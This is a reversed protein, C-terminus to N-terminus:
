GGVTPVESAGSVRLAIRVVAKVNSCPSPPGADPPILLRVPGGKGPALPEGALTHLLLGERLLALPVPDSAFGDAAVVVAETAGGDGVRDLLAAVRAAEGARGPVRAGVDPVAGPLAALAERDVTVFSGDPRVVQLRRALASLEGATMRAAELWAGARDLAEAGEAAVFVDVRSDRRWASPRDIVDGSAIELRVVGEDTRFLGKMRELPAGAGGSALRALADVLRERCFVVDPAWRWSRAAFGHGVHGAHDHDHDHDHSVGAAPVRPGAGEPWSWADDPLVGHATVVTRLPGPWLTAAWQEFRALQEPTALDSRNAVLVDASEAQERVWPAGAARADLRRPDVLAVVPGVAIRDAYPARRLTDVLDSARALGTPEVFIRDPQVEDLLKGLADVFGRPATCCVCAGDIEAVQVDQGAETVRADDFGAEGFDNVLVAIREKGRRRCLQDLLTTTKGSGLFGSLVHVPTTM